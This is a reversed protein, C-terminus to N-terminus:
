LLMTTKSSWNELIISMSDDLTYTWTFLDYIQDLCSQSVIRIGCLLGQSRCMCPAELRPWRSSCPVELRVRCSRYNILVVITERLLAINVQITEKYGFLSEM